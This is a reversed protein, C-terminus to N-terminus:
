ANKLLSKFSCSSNHDLGVLHGLEHAITRRLRDASEGTWGTDLTLEAAVTIVGNSDVAAATQACADTLTDVDMVVCDGGSGCSYDVLQFQLGTGSLAANWDNVANRAPAPSLDTGAVADWIDPPVYVSITTTGEHM